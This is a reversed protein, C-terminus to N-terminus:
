PLITLNHEIKALKALMFITNDFIRYFLNKLWFNEKADLINGSIFTIGLFAVGSIKRGFPTVGLSSVNMLVIYSKISLFLNELDLPISRLKPCARDANVTLLNCSSSVSGILRCSVNLFSAKAKTSCNPSFIIGNKLSSSFIARSVFYSM